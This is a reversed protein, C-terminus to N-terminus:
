VEAVLGEPPNIYRSDSSSSWGRGRQVAQYQQANKFCHCIEMGSLGASKCQTFDQLYLKTHMM